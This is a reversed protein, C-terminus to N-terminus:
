DRCRQESTMKNGVGPVSSPTECSEYTFCHPYHHDRHHYHDIIIIISFLCIACVSSALHMCSCIFALHIFLSLVIGFVGEEAAGSVWGRSLAVEVTMMLQRDYLFVIMTEHYLQAVKQNGGKRESRKNSSEHHVGGTWYLAVWGMM